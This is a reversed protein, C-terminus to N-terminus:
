DLDPFLEASIGQYRGQLRDFYEPGDICEPNDVETCPIEAVNWVGDKLQLLASIGEYRNKGDPSQPMTDVWAWGDKVKLHQVVFVVDLGHFRKVESRLADLVQKRLPNGPLPTLDSDEASVAVGFISSLLAIIFIQKVFKM